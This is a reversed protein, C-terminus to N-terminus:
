AELNDSYCYFTGDQTYLYDDHMDSEFFWEDIASLLQRAEACVDEMASALVSAIGTASDEPIGEDVLKDHMDDVYCISWMSYTYWRNEKVHVDVYVPCPIGALACMDAFSVSGYINCGCGQGSDSYQWNVTSNPLKEPLFLNMEDNAYLPFLEDSLNIAANVQANHDLEEFTYLNVPQSITIM